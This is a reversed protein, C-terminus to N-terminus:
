ESDVVHRDKDGVKPIRVFLEADGYFHTDGYENGLYGMFTSKTANLGKRPTVWHVSFLKKGPYEEEEEDDDVMMRSAGEGKGKGKIYGAEDVDRVLNGQEAFLADMDGNEFDHGSVDVASDLLVLDRRPHDELKYVFRIRPELGARLAANRLRADCGKLLATDLLPKAKDKTTRDRDMDEDYFDDDEDYRDESDDPRPMPYQHALGFALFGGNPFWARDSLLVRLSTECALEPPPAIRTNPATASSGSTRATLFLNYTLTVRYGSIVPEVTHTVDSFFAIYAVAPPVKGGNAAGQPMKLQSASDFVWKGEGQSLTLAGGEHETPLVVVLSGIMNNARPTDKHAKFFSGPGYVNLKYMEARIVRDDQADQSVLLEPSIADLIGSSAVDLRASFNEVDLKGAKRYTEDLVDGHEAGFTAKQCAAALKELADNTPANFDIYQAAGASESKSDGSRFFLGLDEKRVANVGCTYPISTKLSSKLVELHDAITWTGPM